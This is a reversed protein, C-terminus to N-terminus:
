WGFRGIAAWQEPRTGKWDFYTVGLLGLTKAEALSATIEDPPVGGRPGEPTTQAGLEIPIARGALRQVAAFSADITARVAAASNAGPALM